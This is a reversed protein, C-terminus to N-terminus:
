PVLELTAVVGPYEANTIQYNVTNTWWSTPCQPALRCRYTIRWKIIQPGSSPAM